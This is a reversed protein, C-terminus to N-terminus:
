GVLEKLKTMGVRTCYDGFLEGRLRETKFASFVRTLKPVIQEITLVPVVGLGPITAIVGVDEVFRIPRQGYVIGRAASNGGSM